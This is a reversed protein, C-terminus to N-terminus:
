SRCITKKVIDLLTTFNIPKSIFEACGAEEAKEKDSSFINATLAVIYSDPDMKKIRRTAEFGDLLPLGLDMLILDYKTAQAMECAEIGNKARDLKYAKLIAKVLLFNSDNDEVVLIKITPLINDM